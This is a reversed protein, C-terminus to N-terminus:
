RITFNMENKTCCVYANSEVFRYFLDLLHNAGMIYKM